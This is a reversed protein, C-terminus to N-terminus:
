FCVDDDAAEAAGSSKNPNSGLFLYQLESDPRPKIISEFDLSEWPNRKWLADVTLHDKPPLKANIRAAFEELKAVAYAKIEAPEVKEVVTFEDGCSETKEGSRYVDIVLGKLRGHAARLRELRKLIGPKEKSGLKAAYIERTYCYERGSSKSVWPKMNIVTHLGVFYPWNNEGAECIICRSGGLGKNKRRCPEYNGWKGNVRFNHEWFSVPDDDLFMLRASGQPPLWFRKPGSPGDAADSLAENAAGYGVKFWSM